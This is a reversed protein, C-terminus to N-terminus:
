DEFALNQCNQCLGSIRYERVCYVNKFMMRPNNCEMCENTRIAVQADEEAISRIPTNIIPKGM